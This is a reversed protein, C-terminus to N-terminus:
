LRPIVKEGFRRIAELTKQHSPGGPQRFRVIVYDPHIAEKWMQLQQLCDEPSGVILREKACKSFSLDEPRKVDKLHEDPVYAGYQFYFRHTYMTPASEAEAVKMSDAIVADRM